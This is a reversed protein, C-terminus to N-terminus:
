GAVPERGAPAPGADRWAPALAPHGSHTGGGEAGRAPHCPRGGSWRRSSNGSPRRGAWARTGNTPCTRVNYSAASTVAPLKLPHNRAGAVSAPGVRTAGSSHRATRSRLRSFNFFVRVGNAFRIYASAGPDTSPLHGGDGVYRPDHDAFADDLQGFVEIPDSEAFFCIKDLTHTGKRIVDRAQLNGWTTGFNDLLDPLLDCVAVVRTQPLSAYAAAHSYPEQSVVSPHPVAAPRKSGIGRLGVIGVRYRDM